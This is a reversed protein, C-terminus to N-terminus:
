MSWSQARRVRRTMMQGRAIVRRDELVKAVDALNGTRATQERSWLQPVPRMAAARRAKEAIEWYSGHPPIERHVGTDHALLLSVVEAHGAACAYDLIRFGDADIAAAAAQDDLLIRTVDTHGQSAAYM